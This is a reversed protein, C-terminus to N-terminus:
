SAKRRAKGAGAGPEGDPGAGAPRAPAQPRASPPAVAATAAPDPASGLATGPAPDPPQGRLAALGAFPHPRGDGSQADDAYGPSRAAARTVGVCDAHRPSIPLQLIAEDEVLAALDFQTSGLLAEDPTDDIPIAALEAQTDVFYFIREGALMLALKKGCRDCRLPLVAELWLQLSPRGHTDTGGRCRYEVAGDRDGPGDTLSACLRPLAALPLQGTWEARSRAAVYIDIRDM